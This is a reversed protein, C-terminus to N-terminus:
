SVGKAGLAQTLHERIGNLETETLIRKPIASFAADSHFIVLSLKTERWRYFDGWTLRSQGIASTFSIAQSDWEASWDGRLSKQQSILRRARRRPVFRNVLLVLPIAVIFAIGLCALLFARDVGSWAFTSGIWIVALSLVVIRAILVTRNGRIQARWHDIVDAETYRFSVSPM